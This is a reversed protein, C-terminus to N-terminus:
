AILGGIHIAITGIAFFVVTGLLDTIAREKAYVLVIGCFVNTLAINLLGYVVIKSSLVRISATTKHTQRLKSRSRKTLNPRLM